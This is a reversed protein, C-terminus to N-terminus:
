MRSIAAHWKQSPGLPAIAWHKTAGADQRCNKFVGLGCFAPQVGASSERADGIVKSRFISITGELELTLWLIDTQLGSLTRDGHCFV